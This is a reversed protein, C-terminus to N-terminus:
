PKRKLASLASLIEKSASRWLPRWEISCASSFHAEAHRLMPADHGGKGHVESIKDFAARFSALLLEELEKTSAAQLELKWVSFNLVIDKLDLLKAEIM